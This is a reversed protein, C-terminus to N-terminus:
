KVKYVKVLHKYFQAFFWNIFQLLCFVNLLLLLSLIKIWNDM